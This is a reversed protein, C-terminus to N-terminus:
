NGGVNELTEWVAKKMPPSNGQGDFYSLMITKAVWDNTVAGLDRVILTREQVANPPTLIIDLPQHKAFTANPFLSKLSNMPSAVAVADEQTMTKSTYATQIRATLTRIFADRLHTYSTNRTPIIRLLCSTNDVLFKIKEEQPASQSVERLKPNSLDAYFGVSYVKIGLFSVTRVGCGLLTYTPLKVKSQVTLTRPFAISTDPDVVEDPVVVADLSISQKLAYAAPFAFCTGWFLPKRWGHM